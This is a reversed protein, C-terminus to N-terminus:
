KLKKHIVDATTKYAYGISFNKHKVAIGLIKEKEGKVLIPEGMIFGPNKAIFQNVWAPTEVQKWLLIVNKNNIEDSIIQESSYDIIRVFPKEKFAMYFTDTDYSRGKSVIYDVPQPIVKKLELYAQERQELQNWRNQKIIKVTFALLTTVILISLTLKLPKDKIALIASQFFLFFLITFPIINQITFRTQMAHNFFACFLIWIFLFGISNILLFVADFSGIKLENLYAKFGLLIKIKSFFILALAVPLFAVSLPTLLAEVFSFDKFKKATDHAYNLSNANENFMIVVYPLLVIFGLGVIFWFKKSRFRSRGLKTMIMTIFLAIFSVVAQYKSFFFLLACLAFILWYFFHDSKLSLYFFYLMLSSLVLAFFDPTFWIQKTFLALCISVPVLAKIRIDKFYYLSLKWGLYSVLLYGTYTIVPSVLLLLKSPFVALVAGAFWFAVPPHKPYFFVFDRGFYFTEIIDAQLMYCSIVSLVTLLFISILGIKLPIFATVREFMFLYRIHSISDHNM